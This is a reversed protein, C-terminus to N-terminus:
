FACSLDKQEERKKGLREKTSCEKDSKEGVAFRMCHVKDPGNRLFRILCGAIKEVRRCLWVMLKERQEATACHVKNITEGSDFLLRVYRHEAPREGGPFDKWNEQEHTIM